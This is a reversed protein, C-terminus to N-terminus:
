AEYDRRRDEDFESIISSSIEVGANEDAVAVLFLATMIVSGTLMVGGLVLAGRRLDSPSPRYYGRKM